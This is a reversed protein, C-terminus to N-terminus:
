GRDASADGALEACVAATQVDAPFACEIRIEDLTIDRPTAFTTITEFFQLEGRPSRFVLKFIPPPDDDFTRHAWEHPVGPYRLVEELLSRAAQDWPSLAMDTHLQHIFKAAVETWNVVVQRFDQPDFIQRLLNTHASRVGGMLFDNMRAAGGNAHLVDFHRNVVFAPYPEHHALILDIAKRMPDLIPTALSNEQYIPAFGGALLLANRDRLSLGLSEAIRLVASRSPQAKGTEIFGVHRPSMDCALALDLQNMRKMARWQRLLTGFPPYDQRSRAAKAAM